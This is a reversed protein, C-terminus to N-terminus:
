EEFLIRHNVLNMGKLKGKIIKQEGFISVLRFQGNEEPEVLDVAELLLEEEGNKIFFANAECM